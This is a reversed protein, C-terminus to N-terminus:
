CRTRAPALDDRGARAPPRGLPSDLLLEAMGIVGNMPTRIEHSMTALFDSKARDAAQAAVALARAQEATEELSTNTEALMRNSDAIEHYLSANRIAIAAQDALMLILTRNDATLDTARRLGVGLIALLQDGVQVPVAYIARVSQETWWALTQEPFRHRSVSNPSCCRSAPAHLRDRRHRRSHGHAPAALRGSTPQSSFTRAELTEQAADAVWFVTGPADVLDMTAQAVERLVDELDLSASVARMLEGLRGLREVQRQVSDYLRANEIAVAARQGLEIMLDVDSM